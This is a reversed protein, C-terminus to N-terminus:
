EDVILQRSRLKHKYSLQMSQDGAKVPGGVRERRTSFKEARHAASNRLVNRKRARMDM